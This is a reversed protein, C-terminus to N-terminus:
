RYGVQGTSIGIWVVITTSTWVMCLRKWNSFMILISTIKLALLNHYMYVKENLFGNLFVSKM